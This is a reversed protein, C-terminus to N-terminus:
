GVRGPIMNYRDNMLTESMSDDLNTTKTDEYEKQRQQHDAVKFAENSALERQKIQMQSMLAARENQLRGVEIQNREKELQKDISSLSASLKEIEFEIQGRLQELEMKGQNQMQVAQLKSNAGIEAVKIRGEIEMQKGQLQQQLQQILQKMQEKEPDQQEAGLQPFFREAGKYGLAGFVETVIEKADLGQMLMPAFQGVTQLGMALRQIRQQPNTSGFGVNVRVTVMGQLLADTMQNIGFKEFMQARQGAIALVMEDTEYAQEMRVLQKLVTEVWTEAFIRLQYETIVNADSQLLNMGGVTENLQRNSQV